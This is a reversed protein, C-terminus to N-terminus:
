LADCVDEMRTYGYFNLKVWADVDFDDPFKVTSVQLGDGSAWAQDGDDALEQLKDVVERDKVWHASSSGDGNDSLVMYVTKM